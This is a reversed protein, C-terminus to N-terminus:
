GALNERDRASTAAYGNIYWRFEDLDADDRVVRDHYGRQWVPAGPWGRAVSIQKTAAAKFGAVLSGLSRPSVTDVMDGFLSVRGAM